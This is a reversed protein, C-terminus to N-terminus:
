HLVVGPGAAEHRMFVAQLRRLNDRWLGLQLQLNEPSIGGTVLVTQMMALDGDKDIGLRASSLALGLEAMVADLLPRSASVYCSLQMGGFRGPQDPRPAVLTAMFGAGSEADVVAAAQQNLRTVPCGNYEWAEKLDEIDLSRVNDSAHYTPGSVSGAEPRGLYIRYNLPARGDYGLCDTLVALAERAAGAAGDSPELPIEKRFNEAEGGIRFGRDRLAHRIADTVYPKLAANSEGSSVEMLLAEGPESWLQVYFLADPGPAFELVYFSYDGPQWHAGLEDDPWRCVRDLHATVVGECNAHLEAAPRPAASAALLVGDDEFPRAPRAPLNLKNLMTDTMM